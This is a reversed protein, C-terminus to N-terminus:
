EKSSTTEEPFFPAEYPVGEGMAQELQALALMYDFFSQTYAGQARVLERQQDNVVQFNALGARYQGQAIRLSERAANLQVSTSQQAMRALEVARYAQRVEREINQRKLEIGALKGAYQAEAIKTQHEVVNGQLIPWQLVLGVRYGGSALANGDFGVPNLTGALGVRPRNGRSVAKLEKSASEADAEAAALDARQEFARNLATERTLDFQEPPILKEVELPTSQPLGLLLLLAEKASQREFVTREVELEAEALPVEAFVVDGRPVQGVAFRKEATDYNTKALDRSVLANEVREEARLVDIYAAEIQLHFRRWSDVANLHTKDSSLRAAAIQNRVQGGDFLLKNVNIGGELLTYAFNPSTQFDGEIGSLTAEVTPTQAPQVRALGATVNVGWRAPASAVQIQEDAIELGAVLQKIQPNQALAISVAQELDLRLVQEEAQSIQCVLLMCLLLLQLMSLKVQRFKPFM